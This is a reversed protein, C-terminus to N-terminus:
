FEHSIGLSYYQGLFDYAVDAASYFGNYIRPPNEDTLNYVNLNLRTGQGLDYGVGLTVYAVSDITRSIENGGCFDGDCETFEDYFNVRLRANLKDRNWTTTLIWRNEILTGCDYVGVCNTVNQGGDDTPTRIEYEDVMTYDLSFNFSGFDGASLYYDAQVDLGSTGVEGINTSAAFINSVLGNNDRQIKDCYKRDANIYCNALISSAGISGITNEIEYDWWDVTVSLDQIPNLIVGFQTSEATEPGLDPNGGVRARLQARDDAVGGVLGDADCNATVTANIGYLGGADAVNSCPDNVAPFSDSQGAFLSAVSPAKFAESFTGRFAIWNNLDWRFGVKSNNTDGFNSYDSYRSSLSLNMNGVTASDFVPIALELYAEEVSYDGRTSEGKNGTTDGAETLPDEVFAGEEDRKEIGFALGVDGAPLEFISANSVNLQFANQQYTTKATGTYSIWDIQDQTISGPGGFLNLPVCPADCDSSLAQVVRSRIFRGENTDTGDTRGFNYSVEIDWDELSMEVGGVIRYTDIDQIFNRNGAEVMRRRVDIFDRGFPNHFQDAEVTIGESIIFLPTPALLQDSKRNIYSLEMFGNVGDLLEYNGTIFFNTREQPTYLYNEPQYNYYSGEGSDSNGGFSFSSWTQSPNLGGPGWLFPGNGAIAQWAANGEQGLRDIITGEPTASSGLGFEEGTEWDYFIDQFAWGRDGAMVEKMEYRGLTMMINGRDSTTGMTFSWDTIEGDGESSAGTFLSVEAGEFDNRTIFNVVGAVADAGYVSSAGDLLVDVREITAPAIANLDVTGGTAYPVHRRGNILVLTRGSGLNRLSLQTSGNGGNNNQANLGGVNQPIDQLFDGISTVGLDEIEQRSIISINSDSDASSRAIRSGTVVIEEVENAEEDEAALAANPAGVFLFAFLAIVKWESIIKKM